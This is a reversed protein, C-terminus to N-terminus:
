YLKVAHNKETKHKRLENKCTNKKLFSPLQQINQLQSKKFSQRIYTLTNNDLLSASVVSLADGSILMSIVNKYSRLFFTSSIFFYFNLFRGQSNGGVSNRITM